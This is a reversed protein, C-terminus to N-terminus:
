RARRTAAPARDGRHRKFEARQEADRDRVQQQQEQDGVEGVAASDRLAQHTVGQGVHEREPDVGGRPAVVAADTEGAGLAVVEEGDVEPHRQGEQQRRQQQQRDQAQGATVLEGRQGVQEREAVAALQGPHQHRQEHEGARQGVDRQLDARHGLRDAHQGLLHRRGRQREAEADAQGHERDQEARPVDRRALLVGAQHHRDGELRQDLQERQQQDPGERQEADEVSGAPEVAPEGRVGLGELLEVRRHAFAGPGGEHQEGEGGREQQRPLEVHAEGLVQRRVRQRDRGPGERQEQQQQVQRDRQDQPGAHGAAGRHVGIVVHEADRQQGAVRQQRHEGVDAADGRGARHDDDGRQRQRRHAQVVQQQRDGVGVRLEIDVAPHQPAPPQQDAQHDEGAEDEVQRELVVLPQDLQPQDREDGDGLEQGTHDAQEVPRARGADAEQGAEAAPRQHPGAQQLLPVTASFGSTICTTSGAPWSLHCNAVRQDSDIM